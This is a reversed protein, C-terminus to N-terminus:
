QDRHIQSHSQASQGRGGVLKVMLVGGGDKGSSGDM